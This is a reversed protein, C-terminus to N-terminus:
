LKVCNVWDPIDAENLDDEKMIFYVPYSPVKNPFYGEGDSFYFLADIKKGKKELEAIREFVPVFDTGGGGMAHHNRLVDVAQRFTDFQMEKKIETDCELYTIVGKGVKNEVNELVAITERLFEPLFDVCSGSTDVALVLMNMCEKETVELPEILAVDGYCELGYLYLNFDINDEEKTVEAQKIVMSLIHSYDKGQGEAAKGLTTSSSSVGIDMKKWISSIQEMQINDAELQNQMSKTIGMMMRVNKWIKRISTGDKDELCASDNNSEIENNDKIKAWLVHSDLCVEKANNLIEKRANKDRRGLFYLGPHYNNENWIHWKTKYGLLLMMNAVRLDMVAWRLPLWQTEEEVEFDGFVGHLIIHLLDIIIDEVGNCRYQKIVNNPHFYLCKGDTILATKEKVPVLEFVKIAGCLFHMRQKIIKLCNSLATKAIRVIKTEQEIRTFKGQEVLGGGKCNEM